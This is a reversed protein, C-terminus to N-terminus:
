SNVDSSISLSNKGFVAFARELARQCCLIGVHLNYCLDFKLAVEKKAFLIVLLIVGFRATSLIASEFWSTDRQRDIEGSAGASRGIMLIPFDETETEPM